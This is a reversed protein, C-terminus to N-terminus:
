HETKLRYFVSALDSFLDDKRPSIAHGTMSESIDMFDSDCHLNVNPGSAKLRKMTSSFDVQSGQVGSVGVAVSSESVTRKRPSSPCSATTHVKSNSRSHRLIPILDSRFKPGVKQVLPQPSSHASVHHPNTGFSTLMLAATVASGQREHTLSKYRKLASELLVKNRLGDPSRVAEDISKIKAATLNALQEKPEVVPAPSRHLLFRGKVPYARVRLTTTINLVDSTEPSIDLDLDCVGEDDSPPKVEPEASLVNLQHNYHYSAMSSICENNLLKM